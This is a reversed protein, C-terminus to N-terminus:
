STTCLLAICKNELKAPYPNKFFLWISRIIFTMILASPTKYALRDGHSQTPPNRWFYIMIMRMMMVMMMAMMTMMMMM